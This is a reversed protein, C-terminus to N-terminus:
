QLTDIKYNDHFGREWMHHKLTGLSYIYARSLNTTWRNGGAYYREDVRPNGRADFEDCHIIRAKFMYKDLTQVYVWSYEERDDCQPTDPLLPMFAMLLVTAAIGILIGILMGSGYSYYTDSDGVIDEYEFYNDM